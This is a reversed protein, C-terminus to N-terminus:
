LGLAATLNVICGFSQARMVVCEKDRDFRKAMRSFTAATRTKVGGGIDLLIRFV